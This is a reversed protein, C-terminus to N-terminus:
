RIRITDGDCADVVCGVICKHDAISKEPLHDETRFLTDGELYDRTHFPLEFPAPPEGNGRKPSSAASGMKTPEGTFILVLFASQCSCLRFSLRFSCLSSSFASLSSFEQCSISLGFVTLSSEDDCCAIRSLLVGLHVVLIRLRLM